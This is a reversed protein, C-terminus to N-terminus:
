EFYYTKSHKYKVVMNDSEMIEKLGLLTQKGDKADFDFLFADYTVLVLQSLKDSLFERISNIVSVNNYTEYNQVVYNFLKLKTISRDSKVKLGTPLQYFGQIRYIEYVYDVYEQMKSFFEIRRYEEEVGGYLQKFTLVKSQEYEEETLEDKSFYLKGLQVHVPEKSLEVGILRAILRVHYGDFDFEVFRDRKPVIFSRAEKTKPVALFNMGNFANTPRGTFNYLNYSSYVVSDRQFFKPVKISFYEDYRNEVGIGSSEVYRYAECLQDYFGKKPPATPWSTPNREVGMRDMITDYLCEASEYHKAIPVIENIRDDDGFKHYYDKKAVPDCDYKPVEVGDDLFCFNMDVLVSHDFFYSHFKKDLVYVRDHSDVFEKIKQFPISFSESHQACLVYGKEGDNYYVLCPKAVLPHYSDNNTIIKVFCCPKKTLRSLQDETEM